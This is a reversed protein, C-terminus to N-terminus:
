ELMEDKWLFERGRGRKRVQLGEGAYCPIQLCISKLSGFM